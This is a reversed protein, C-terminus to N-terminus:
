GEQRYFQHGYIEAEDLLIKRNEMIFAAPHVIFRKYPGFIDCTKRMEKRLREESIGETNILHSDMGGDVVFHSRYKEMLERQDNCPTVANFGDVGIELLDDIFDQMRGCSHYLFNHEALRGFRKWM